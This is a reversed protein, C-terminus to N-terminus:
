SSSAGWRLSGSRCGASPGRRTAAPPSWSRTPGSGAGHPSWRMVPAGWGTSRRSAPRRTSRPAPESASEGLGRVFKGVHLGAGLPDIVAGHYAESGIEAALESRPVVTSKVGMRETLIEHTRRMGDFHAPKCALTLKGSRAFDCDIGEDAVLKEITDIADYYSNYLDRATPFGYRAVADRLGLSLGPTAMGGNRGSAGWGVTEKELVAVRAGKRALHLAASMGTLVATTRSSRRATATPNANVLALAEDYSEVRVVSLVPRFIEHAYISMATTVHDFVTPGLWFGDLDGQPSVTRGDVVLTAGAQEGADVWAAVQDRHQRTVLPGMDPDKRGDGTVISSTRTAIREVLDDAIDGVAVVVSIAMCREGASGFGANVAADAALDLDADPLVVMHNKAGGLAQVRKGHATGTEYVYRAVPTSGVFSVAKIAPNTLAAM